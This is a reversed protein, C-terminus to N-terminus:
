TLASCKSSFLPVSSYSTQLILSAIERGKPMNYALPFLPLSIYTTIIVQDRVFVIQYPRSCKHERNIVLRTNGPQQCRDKCDRLCFRSLKAHTEEYHHPWQYTKTGTAHLRGLSCIHSCVSWGSFSICPQKGLWILKKALCWWVELAKWRLGSTCSDQKCNVFSNTTTTWPLFLSFGWKSQSDLWAIVSHVKRLDSM